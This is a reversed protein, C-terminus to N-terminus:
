IEQELLLETKGKFVIAEPSSQCDMDINMQMLPLTQTLLEIKILETSIANHQMPRHEHRM